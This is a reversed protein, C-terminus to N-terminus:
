LLPVSGLERAAERRLLPMEEKELLTGNESGEETRKGSQGKARGAGGQGGEGAKGAANKYQDGLNKIRNVDGKIGGKVNAVSSSERRMFDFPAKLFKIIPDLFM